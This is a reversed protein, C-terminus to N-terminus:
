TVLLEGLTGSSFWSGPFGPVSSVCSGGMFCGESACEKCFRLFNKRLTHEILVHFHVSPQKARGRRESQRVRWAIAGSNQGVSAGHGSFLETEWRPPCQPRLV